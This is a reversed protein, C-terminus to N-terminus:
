ATAVGAKKETPSEFIYPLVFEYRGLFGDLIKRFSRKNNDVMESPQYIDYKCHSLLNLARSFLNADELGHICTSFDDRGFLTATKELISRLM